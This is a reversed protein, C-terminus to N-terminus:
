FAVIRVGRQSRVDAATGVPGGAIALAETSDNAVLNDGIGEQMLVRRAAFGPYPATRWRRAFNLPDGPDLAQQGSRAPAPPLGRVRALRIDLQAQMAYYQSYIPRTGPNDGLFAVRGGAVNLVAMQLSPELAIFTAGLIGGLSVGLYGFRSPEIDPVSDGDIDIGAQIARAVAM